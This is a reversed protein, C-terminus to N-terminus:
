THGTVQAYLRSDRMDATIAGIRFDYCGNHSCQFVTLTTKRRAFNELQIISIKENGILNFFQRVNSIEGLNEERDGDDEIIVRTVQYKENVPSIEYLFPTDTSVLIKLKEPPYNEFSSFLHTLVKRPNINEM